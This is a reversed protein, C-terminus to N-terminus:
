EDKRYFFAGGREECHLLTGFRLLSESAGIVLRGGPALADGLSTTVHQVTDDGFYILVNRCLVLDFRGLAAIEQPEVLNVRRYDIADVIPRAVHAVAGSSAADRVIWRDALQTVLPEAGPTLMRLSRAGYVGTRARALARLSIDTAVIETRDLLGAHQVLMALTVPEEGTACAASWVRARGRRAVAPAIVHEVAKRLPELERFFYTEGVVLADILADLEARSGDDYRLLYYYDLANDFGAEVLRGSVKDAFVSMDEPGYHLGTREEVLGSLIAFVQPSLTNM